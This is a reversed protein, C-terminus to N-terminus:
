RTAGASPCSYVSSNPWVARTTGAGAVLVHGQCLLLLGAVAVLREDFDEPLAWAAQAERVIGDRARAILDDPWLDHGM